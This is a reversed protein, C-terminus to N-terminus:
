YLYPLIRYRVRATYAQWAEGYRAACHAADRRERHVLLITFYVIYFYALPRAGCCLCWALGMMLDGAYNPHRALGWFGSALLPTGPATEIVLPPRGWIPASPDARFRHKQLNSLRFVLYGALHLLAIGGLALTSLSGPQAVLLLAQLSYTFPVWVLDGFALMWGFREHRIDWTSLIAEEHWFYDLVYHLQCACVLLMPASLRGHLELQKAACALDIVIWGILGVRSECFFKLDFSGLRPNLEVGLVFDRILRGLGLSSTRAASPAAAGPELGGAVALPEDAPPAPTRARGLALLFVGFGLLLALGPLLLEGLRDHLRAPALWGLAVGAGLLAFTVCLALLGNMRYPLRTGDALTAGLVGRGPLSRDLLAQLAFWGLFLLAGALTPAPLLAVLLRLEELSRPLALGGLRTACVFLYLVVLQTGLLIALPGLSGNRKAM